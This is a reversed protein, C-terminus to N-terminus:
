PYHKEVFEDILPYIKDALRVADRIPFQNYSKGNMSILDHYTRLEELLQTLEEKNM